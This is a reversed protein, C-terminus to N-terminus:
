PGSVLMADRAAKFESGPSWRPWADSAAVRLAVQLMVEVDAATSEFDWSEDFEDSPQHYRTSYYDNWVEQGYGEPKGTFSMGPRVCLAPIGVQAFPFHDSRFFNGQEPAPDPNLHRGAAELVAVLDNELTTLGEGVIWV